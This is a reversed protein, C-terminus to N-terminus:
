ELILKFIKGSIASSYAIENGDPSWNPDIELEDATDTLQTVNTGNVDIIFLDSETMQSSDDKSVQYVIKTGDPSWSPNMGHVLKLKNEGNPDMVILDGWRSYIIKTRDPSWVPDFGMDFTLQQSNGSSDVVFVKGNNTLLYSDSENSPTLDGNQDTTNLIPSTILLRNEVVAALSRKNNSVDKIWQPPNTHSRPPSIQHSEGDVLRVRKLTGYQKGNKYSLTRYGIESSDPSWSFYLGAGNEDTLERKEAGDREMVVIGRYGEKTFAISEGDLSYCPRIYFQDDYTLQVVRSKINEKFEPKVEQIFDVADSKQDTGRVERISKEEIQEKLDSPDNSAVEYEVENEQNIEITDTLEVAFIPQFSQFIIFIFYFVAVTTKCLFFHKM